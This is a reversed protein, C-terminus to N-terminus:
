AEAAQRTDAAAIIDAARLIRWAAHSIALGDDYFADYVSASAFIEDRM